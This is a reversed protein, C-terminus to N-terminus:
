NGLASGAMAALLIAPLLGLLTALAFASTKVPMVASGASVLFHPAGILRLGLVLWAGRAKFGAEFRHLFRAIRPPVRGQAFHRTTTFIILSGALAGFTVAATASWTDLLAGSSAAIPLLVGPVWLAIIIATGAFIVGAILVESEFAVTLWSLPDDVM